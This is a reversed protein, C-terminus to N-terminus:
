RSKEAHEYVLEWEDDMNVSAYIFLLYAIMWAVTEYVNEKFMLIYFGYFFFMAGIMAYWPAIRKLINMGAESWERPEELAM